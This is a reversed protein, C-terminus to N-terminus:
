EIVEDARALLTPPVELGLAKATKLNIVLEFKTPQEVPLDAPKRGRLIKDVYDGSRRFQDPLNAGYSILGGAETFERFASVTPLRAGLALTAIRARNTNTLPEAFVYLAEARGVLATIAPEIDEARRIGSTAAELGLKRAAAEVERVELAATVSGVSALIALQHLSPVVERVLEVRKGAADPFQNSLGTVNGGPRALSDVVGISVPDAVAAFVIPIDSTARKAAVILSPSHTVIVDVKLRILEAVLEPSRDFRGEAWRYEIAINRGEIWGLEQLRQVFAATM